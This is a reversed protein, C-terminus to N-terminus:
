KRTSVHALGGPFLWQNFGEFLIYKKEYKWLDAQSPYIENLMAEKEKISKEDLVYKYPANMETSYFIVNGGKRAIDEGMAGTARHEPHTDYIPDPFLFTNEKSLFQSPINFLFLQASVRTFEKLRIAENKRDETIHGTYIVLPKITPHNLVSWCGILEDDPHPAVIIVQNETLEVAPKAKSGAMLKDFYEKNGM